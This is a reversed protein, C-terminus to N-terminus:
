NSYQEITQHQSKPSPGFTDRMQIWGILTKLQSLKLNKNWSLKFFFFFVINFGYFIFGLAINMGSILTSNMTNTETKIKIQEANANIKFIPHNCEYWHSKISTPKKRFM